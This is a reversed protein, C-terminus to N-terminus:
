SSFSPVYRAWQGTKLDRGWEKNHEEIFQTFLAWFDQGDPPRKGGSKGDSKSKSTKARKRKGTDETPM